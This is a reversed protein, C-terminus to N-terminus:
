LRWSSVGAMEEVHRGFWSEGVSGFSQGQQSSWKAGLAFM